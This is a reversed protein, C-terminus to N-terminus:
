NVYSVQKVEFVETGNLTEILLRGFEDVGTIKGEFQRENSEFVHLKNLWYLVNLYDDKLIQYAGAKLQLYRAELHSLLEQLLSALDYNEGTELSLSTASSKSFNQQNVNLGIGLITNSVQLGRIQNEILIGCLKKGNVYIDNPWKINVRDTKSQLLDYIALSAFINLFFQDKVQLFTPKLIVSLTLNKGPETQWTNGRQGRGATQNDTIVVTGDSTSPKQSLELALTNTSHCEPVFILQKGLFLTNAPIKYM